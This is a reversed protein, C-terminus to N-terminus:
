QKKQKGKKKAAKAAKKAAKKAEKESMVEQVAEEESADQEMAKSATKVASKVEEKAETAEKEVEQTVDESASDEEGPFKFFADEIESNIQYSEVSIDMFTTGNMKQTMSKPLMMGEVEEYDSLYTEVAQGKMPGVAAYTRTMIPVYYETDLFYISEDGDKKTLKLKYTETGEIEETGLYEVIHGKERYNILEDEFRKKAAEATMEADGKTPETDGQFPNVGWATQGDYAQIIQMGQVEIEVKELNPRKAYVTIPFEMGQMSSKGTVKLSNLDKWADEGGVNEYYNSLIEDVTQAPVTAVLMGVCFVLGLLKKM